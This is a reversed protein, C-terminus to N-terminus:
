ACAMKKPTHMNERMRWWELFSDLHSGIIANAEPIATMREKLTQDNLRSIEDIGSLKIHPLCGAAPEVNAPVSLDIVLKNGSRELHSYLLVPEPANTCVIILDALAAQEALCKLPAYTLGLAAAIGAAKEKSRNMLVVCNAGMYNVLNKCVNSGMKGAGVILIRQGSSSNISTKIYQIVASAASVAGNSLATRNKICKSSQLVASVLRDLFTNIFGRERAVKVAQKLQGVIEYDGLLQSDLGAGVRFLHAAAAEGKKVYALQTFAAASGRTASCLVSILTAPDATFGYIETRNCTSLIFLASIGFAPASSLCSEYQQRDIAFLGRAPADTKQYSIGALFFGAMDPFRNVNM